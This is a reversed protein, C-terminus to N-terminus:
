GLCVSCRLKDCIRAFEGTIRVFVVTVDALGRGFCAVEYGVQGIARHCERAGLFM